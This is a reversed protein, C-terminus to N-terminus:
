ISISVGDLQNKRKVHAGRQPRDTSQGLLLVNKDMLTHLQHPQPLLLLEADAVDDVLVDAFGLESDPATLLSSRLMLPSTYVRVEHGREQGLRLCVSTATNLYTLWSSPHPM